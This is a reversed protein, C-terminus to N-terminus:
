KDHMLEIKDKMAGTEELDMRIKEAVLNWPGKDNYGKKYIDDLSISSNKYIEDIKAILQKFKHDNNLTTIDKEVAEM